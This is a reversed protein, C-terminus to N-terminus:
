VQTLAADFAKVTDTAYVTFDLKQRKALGTLAKGAGCEVGAIMGAGQIYKMSQQWQVPESLQAILAKKIEKADTKVQADLNQVVPINASSFAINELQEALKEAAPLMLKCHSPVSVALKIMKFGETAALESLKEVAQAHGSVVVQGQCNYNAPSVWAAETSVQECYDAVVNDAKGLVAAMAGEGTPVAQQMLEGRVHVLRVADAFDLVGAAVLASYEGLSHGALLSPAKGSLSQWLRWIAVSATLLVPQTYATQALKDEDACIQWVDFGLVESAENFTELVNPFHKAYDALMNVQQSGQGPFLFVISM